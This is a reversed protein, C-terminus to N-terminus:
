AESEDKVRIAVFEVDNGMIGRADLNWNNSVLKVQELTALVKGTKTDEITAQLVDSVTLINSLHDDSSTGASPFYGLSKVTEGVLRFFAATMSVRYAVPVHEEVEINGIVEVPQYDISESVTVTKAYGVKVSNIMFLARAGTMIRGKAATPM